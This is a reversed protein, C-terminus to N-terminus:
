LSPKDHISVPSHTPCISLAVLSTLDAAPIMACEDQCAELWFSVQNAEAVPTAGQPRPRPEPLLTATVSAPPMVGFSYKSQPAAPAQSGGAPILPQYPLNTM